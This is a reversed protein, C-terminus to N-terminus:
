AIADNSKAVVGDQDAPTDEDDVVSLLLGALASIAEDCLVDDGVIELQPQKDTM